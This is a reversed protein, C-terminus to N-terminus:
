PELSDGCPLCGHPTGRPLGASPMPLKDFITALRRDKSAIQPHTLPSFVPIRARVLGYTTREKSCLRVINRMFNVIGQRLDRQDDGRLDLGVETGHRKAEAMGGQLCRGGYRPLRGRERFAMVEPPMVSTFLGAANPSVRG